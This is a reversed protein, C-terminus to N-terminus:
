HRQLIADSQNFYLTDIYNPFKLQVTYVDTEKNFKVDVLPFDKEEIFPVLISLFKPNVADVTVSARRLYKSYAYKTGRNEFTATQMDDEVVQVQQGQSFVMLKASAQGRQGEIVIAKGYPKIKNKPYTIYRSVYEGSRDHEVQADDRMVLYPVPGRVFYAKRDAYGVVVKDFDYAEEAQGQVLAGFEDERYKAIRGDGGKIQEAGQIKLTTHAESREPEYQPDILFGEGFAYFTVSNEDQQDHGRHFDYGSTMSFHAADEGEWNSRLMVRGSEFHHGLPLKDKPSVPVLPEDGWMFLFPATYTTGAFGALLDKNGSQYVSELWAWLQHPKQYILAGAMSAVDSPIENNDNLALMRGEFPLLKWLVQDAAMEVTPNQKILDPGNSRKLAWAFVSSGGLGYAFYHHGETGYGTEDIFSGLYGDVRGISRQLWQTKEPIEVNWLALSALGLAGYHVTSHNCSLVGPADMGWTSKHHTLEHAFKEIEDLVLKREKESLLPYVLDYGLVMGQTADAVQLHSRWNKRNSPETQRVVALLLDKAKKLYRPEDFLHGAFGLTGVFNQLGRGATGIGNYQTVLEYPQTSLEMYMEAKKKMEDRVDNLWPLAESRLRINPLESLTFFLSPHSEEVRINAVDVDEYPVKLQQAHTDLSLLHSCLVLVSFCSFKIKLM